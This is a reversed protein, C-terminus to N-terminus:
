PDFTSIKQGGPPDGPGQVTQGGSYGKMAVQGGGYVVPDVYYQEAVIQSWWTLGPTSSADFDHRIQFMIFKKKDYVTGDIGLENAHREDCVFVEYPFLTPQGWAMLTLGLRRRSHRLFLNETIIQNRKPDNWKNRKILIFRRYPRFAPHDANNPWDKVAKMHTDLQRGFGDKNLVIGVVYVGDRVEAMDDVAEVDRQYENYAGVRDVEVFARGASISGGDDPTRLSQPAPQLLCEQPSYVISGFHNAYLYFFSHERIKQVAEYVGTGTKFDYFPTEAGIHSLPLCMHLRDGQITQGNITQAKPFAHVHGAWCGKDRRYASGKGGSAADIVDVVLVKNKPLNEEGSRAYPNQRLCIDEDAFGAEKCLVYFAALHCMGDMIPVNFCFTEKMQIMRDQASLTVQSVSGPSSRRYQRRTVYGFFIQRPRRYHNKTGRVSGPFEGDNPETPDNISAMIKIPKMGISTYRGEDPTYNGLPPNYTKHAASRSPRNQLTIEASSNEVGLLASIRMVDGQAILPTSPMIINVDQPIYTLGLVTVAPSYIRDDQDKTAGTENGSVFESLYQAILYKTEKQSGAGLVKREEDLRTELIKTSVSTKYTYEVAVDLPFEADAPLKADSKYTESGKKGLFVCQVRGEGGPTFPIDVKPSTIQGKLAHTVPAFAFEGGGYLTATVKSDGTNVWRDMHFVAAPITGPKMPIEDEGFLYISSGIPYIITYGTTKIHCQAGVATWRGNSDSRIFLSVSRNEYFVLAFQDVIGFTLILAPMLRSSKPIFDRIKAFGPEVNSTGADLADWNAYLAAQVESSISEIEGFRVLIGFPQNPRLTFV